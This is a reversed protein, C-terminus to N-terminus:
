RHKTCIFKYYIGRTTYIKLLCITKIIIPKKDILLIVGNKAEYPELKFPYEFSYIKDEFEQEHVKGGGGCIFLKHKFSKIGNIKIKTITIPYKSRNELNCIFTEEYSNNDCKTKGLFQCYLDSIKINIMSLIYTYIFTFISILLSIISILNEIIFNMM